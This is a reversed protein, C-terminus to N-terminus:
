ILKTSLRLNFEKANLISHNKLEWQWNLTQSYASSNVEGLGRIM